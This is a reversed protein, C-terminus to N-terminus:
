AAAQMESKRSPAQRREKEELDLLAFNAAILGGIILGGALGNIATALLAFGGEPLALYVAGWVIAACFVFGVVLGRLLHKHM